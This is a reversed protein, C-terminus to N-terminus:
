SRKTAVHWIEGHEKRSVYLQISRTSQPDTPGVIVLEKRVPLVHCALKEGSPALLRASVYVGYILAHWGPGVSVIGVHLWDGADTFSTCVTNLM